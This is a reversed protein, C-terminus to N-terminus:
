GHLADISQAIAESVPATRSKLAVVVADAEDDLPRGPVGITQIARMGTRVLNNAVDTAGTFDDAICGLRIPKMPDHASRRTVGGERADKGAPKTAIPSRLPWVNSLETACQMVLPALERVRREVVRASPGAISVTGVAGGGRGSRVAAAVATVGPEAENLALGYGRRATVRLDRL